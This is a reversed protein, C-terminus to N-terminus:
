SERSSFHAGIKAMPDYPLHFSASLPTIILNFMGMLYTYIMRELIYGRNNVMQLFIPQGILNMTPELHDYMWKGM